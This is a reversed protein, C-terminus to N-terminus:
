QFVTPDEIAQVVIGLRLARIRLAREFYVLPYPRKRRAWAFTSNVLSEPLQGQHVLQVVRAIYAFEAPRRANLGTELQKKLDVQVGRRFQQGPSQAIVAGTLFTALLLLAGRRRM